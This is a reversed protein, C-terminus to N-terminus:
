RFIKNIYKKLILIFENILDIIRYKIGKKLLDCGQNNKIKGDLKLKSEVIFAIDSMQDYAREEEWELLKDKEITDKISDCLEKLISIENSNISSLTILHNLIIAGCVRADISRLACWYVFYNILVKRKNLNFKKVTDEYQRLLKENSLLIEYKM